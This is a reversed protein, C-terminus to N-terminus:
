GSCQDIIKQYWALLKNLNNDFKRYLENYKAMRAFATKVVIRQNAIEKDLKLISSDTLKKSDAVGFSVDM